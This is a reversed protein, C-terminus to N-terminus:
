IEVADRCRVLRTDAGAPDAAIAHSMARAPDPLSVTRDPLRLTPAVLELDRWRLATSKAVTLGSLLTVLLARVPLAAAHLLAAIDDGSLERRM